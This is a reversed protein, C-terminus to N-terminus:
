GVGFGITDNFRAPEEIARYCGDDGQHDTVDHWVWWYREKILGSGYVCDALVSEVVVLAYSCEFIDGENNEVIERAREFSLCIGPTREGGYMPLSAITTIVYLRAMEPYDASPEEVHGEPKFVANRVVEKYESETLLM